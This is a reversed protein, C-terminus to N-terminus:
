NASGFIEAIDNHGLNLKSFEYTMDYNNKSFKDYGYKTFFFTGFHTGSSGGCLYLFGEKGFCMIIGGTGIKEEDGDKSVAYEDYRDKESSKKLVFYEINKLEDDTYRAKTDPLCPNSPNYVNLSTDSASPMPPDRQVDRVYDMLYKTAYFDSDYVDNNVYENSPKKSSANNDCSALVRGWPCVRASVLIWELNREKKM